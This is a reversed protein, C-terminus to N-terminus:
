WSAWWGRASRQAQVLVGVTASLDASAVDSVELYQQGEQSFTVGGAFTHSGGDAATFAYDAPVAASDDTTLFTVTGRYGVAPQGFPDEATVTVTLPVGAAATDPLGSLVLQTPTAQYAGISIVAGRPVGRQDADPGGTNDGANVAPSDPLLAMTQTPGGNDQLPGLRPDIPAASTGVQDTADYGSGGTGDGILNHGQSQVAGSVDPASPAANGAVITNRLGGGGVLGGGRSGSNGAASNGSLTASVVSLTGGNDVAGGVGSTFSGGDASNGSFTDDTLTVGGFNVVGGGGAFFGSGSSRATNGSFTSGTVTLTGVSAIGGGGCTGGSVTNASFTSDRVALTGGNTVEVGGGYAVQNGSASNGYLTCGAITGTESVTNIGGGNGGGGGPGVASNGSLVSDTVTLTGSSSSIGGGGGSSAGATSNDSLNSATVTLTGFVNDIGGGSGLDRGNASNGGFTSGSVAVMGSTGARVNAIAGGSASILQSGTGSGTASNGAFSSDSVTLTGRNWIGGGSGGVQVAGTGTASASNGSLTCNSVTLTGTNVIGGGAAGSGTASAANGVLASDTVALTGANAIGGGSAASGDAITLGSVAVTFGSPVDFVRSAHNGSVTVADAGPGSLTLDKNLLLEGTSLTITGALGPRFDVTGGSPTDLIAQRLSGAGANDLNTVTSPVTRDELAELNPRPGRRRLRAGRTLWKPWLSPFM